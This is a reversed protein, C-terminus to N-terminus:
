EADGGIKELSYGRGQRYNYPGRGAVRNLSPPLFPLIINIKM